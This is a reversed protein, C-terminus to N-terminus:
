KMAPITLSWKALVKNEPAPTYVLEAEKIDKPLEFFLNGTLDKSPEFTSGINNATFDVDYMKKAMKIKFDFGGIGVDSSDNNLFNMAIKLKIKDGNGNETAVIDIIKMEINNVTKTKFSKDNKEKSFNETSDKLNSEQGRCGTVLILTSGVVILSMIKKLKM